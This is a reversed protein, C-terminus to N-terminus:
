STGSRAIVGLLDDAHNGSAHPHAEQRQHDTVQRHHVLREGATLGNDGQKIGAGFPPLDVYLRGRVLEIITGEIVDGAKPPTAISDVLKAMPHGPDITMVPVAPAAPLTTGVPEPLFAHWPGRRRGFMRDFRAQTHATEPTM